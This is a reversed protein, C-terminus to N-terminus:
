RAVCLKELNGTIPDVSFYFDSWRENSSEIDIVGCVVALPSRHHSTLYEFDFGDICAQKFKLIGKCSFGNIFDACGENNLVLITDFDKYVKYESVNELDIKLEINDIDEAIM